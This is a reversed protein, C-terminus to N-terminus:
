RAGGGATRAFPAILRVDAGKRIRALEDVTLQALREGVLKQRIAGRVEEFTGLDAARQEYYRRVEADSIQARLKLKSDLIKAARLSRTLVTALAQVDAEWRSLFQELDQASGLKSRIGELAAEVEGEELPYALLKDAESAELRTGIALDLAARLAQEDLAASAAAQAQERSRSAQILAVRAEFELATQTIVAGEVVAVARDIVKGAPSDAEGRAALLCSVIALVARV